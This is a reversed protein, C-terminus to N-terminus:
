FAEVAVLHLPEALEEFALLHHLLLLPGHVVLRDGLVHPTPGVLAGVRHHRLLLLEVARLHRAAFFERHRLLSASRATRIPSTPPRPRPRPRRRPAAATSTRTRDPSRSARAATSRPPPM